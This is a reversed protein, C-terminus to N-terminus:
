IDIIYPATREYSEKRIWFELGVFQSNNEMRLDELQISLTKPSIFLVFDQKTKKIKIRVAPQYGIRTLILFPESLIQIRKPEADIKLFKLEEIGELCKSYDSELLIIKM